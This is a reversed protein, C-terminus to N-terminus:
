TTSFQTTDVSNESSIKQRLFKDIKSATIVGYNITGLWGSMIIGVSGAHYLGPANDPLSSSVDLGEFKTGFSAGSAHQTYHKITRPTAAEIHDAKSRIESYDKGICCSIRRM